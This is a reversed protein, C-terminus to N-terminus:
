ELETFVVRPRKISTSNFRYITKLLIAMKVINIGRIWSFMIFKWKNTNDEFEKTLTKYDESDLVTVKNTLGIQLYKLGKSSITFLIIKKIERESLKYNTKLFAVSKQM